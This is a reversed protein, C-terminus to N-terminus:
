RFAVTQRPLIMLQVERRLAMSGRSDMARSICQVRERLESSLEHLLFYESPFKPNDKGEPTDFLQLLKNAVSTIDELEPSELRGLLFSYTSDKEIDNQNYYIM